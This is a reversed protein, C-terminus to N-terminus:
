TSVMYKKVQQLSNQLPKAMAAGVGSFLKTNHASNGIAFSYTPIHYNIELHFIKM